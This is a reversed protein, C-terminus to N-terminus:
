RGNCVSWIEIRYCLFARRLKNVARIKRDVKRIHIRFFEQGPSAVIGDGREAALIEIRKGDGLQLGSDGQEFGLHGAGASFEFMGNVM